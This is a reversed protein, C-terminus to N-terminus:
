TACERLSADLKVCMGRAVAELLAIIDNVMLHIAESRMLHHEPRDSLLQFLQICIVTVSTVSGRQSGTADPPAGRM